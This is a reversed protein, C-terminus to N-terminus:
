FFFFILSIVTIILIMKISNDDIIKVLKHGNLNKIQYRFWHWINRSNMRSEPVKCVLRRRKIFKPLAFHQLTAFDCKENVERLFHLTWSLRYRVHISIRHTPRHTCLYHESIFPNNIKIKKLIKSVYSGCMNTNKLPVCFFEYKIAFIIQFM